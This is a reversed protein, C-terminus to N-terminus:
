SKQQEIHFLSGKVILRAGYIEINRLISFVYRKNYNTNTKNVYIQNCKLSNNRNNHLYIFLSNNYVYYYNIYIYIYIYIYIHTYPKYKKM